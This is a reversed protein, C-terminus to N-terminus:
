RGDWTRKGHDRARLVGPPVGVGPENYAASDDGCDMHSVLSPIERNSKAYGRDGGLKKEWIVIDVAPSVQVAYGVGVGNGRDEDGGERGNGM